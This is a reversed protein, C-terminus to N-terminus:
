LFAKFRQANLAKKKKKIASKDCQRSFNKLSGESSKIYSATLM